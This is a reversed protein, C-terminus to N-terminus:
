PLPPPTHPVNNSERQNQHPIYDSDNHIKTSRHIYSLPGVTLQNSLDALSTVGHGHSAPLKRQPLTPRQGFSQDCRPQSTEKVPWISDRHLLTRTSKNYPKQYSVMSTLLNTSWAAWIFSSECNTHPKFPHILFSNTALAGSATGCCMRTHQGNMWCWYFEWVSCHQLRLNILIANCRNKFCSQRKFNLPRTVVFCEGQQLTRSCSSLYKGHHLCQERAWVCSLLLRSSVLFLM